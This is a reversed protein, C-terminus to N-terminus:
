TALKPAFIPHPLTDITQMVQQKYLEMDLEEMENYLFDNALQLATELSFDDQDLTACWKHQSLYEALYEQETQGPTPVLVSKKRLKVIDMVTTYGSRSIVIKSKLMLTELESAPLHDFVTIGPIRFIEEDHPLGRVLVIRHHQSLLSLEKLLINELVTRQPEPGSLIILVDYAFQSQPKYHFRSLCGIYKVPVNPLVTPHSIEGALNPFGEQDPVWCEDFQQIFHYNWKRFWREAWKFPSKITLQHTLLVSIVNKHHLGFRCDSIVLDVRRQKLVTELWRRERKISILIKPLQSIIKWMNTKRGGASYVLGYGTLPLIEV